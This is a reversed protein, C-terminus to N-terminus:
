AVWIVKQREKRHSDRFRVKSSTTATIGFAFPTNAKDSRQGFLSRSLSGNGGGGSGNGNPLFFVWTMILGFGREKAFIKSCYSDHSLLIAYQQKIVRAIVRAIVVTFYVVFRFTPFIHQLSSKPPKMSSAADTQRPAALRSPHLISAWSSIRIFQSWRGVVNSAM